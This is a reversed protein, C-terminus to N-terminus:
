CPCSKRYCLFHARNSHQQLQQRKCLPAQRPHQKNSIALLPRQCRNSIGPGVLQAELADAKSQLEFLPVDDIVPPKYRCVTIVEIGLCQFSWGLLVLFFGFVTCVGFPSCCSTCCSTCCCTCCSVDAQNMMSDSMTTLLM